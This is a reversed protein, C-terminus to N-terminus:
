DKFVIAPFFEVSCNPEILDEMTVDYFDLTFTIESDSINELLISATELHEGSVNILIADVSLYKLDHKEPNTITIDMWVGIEDCGWRNILFGLDSYYELLEDHQSNPACYYYGRSYYSDNQTNEFTVIIRESDRDIEAGMDKCIGLLYAFTRASIGKEQLFQYPQEIVMFGSTNTMEFRVFASHKSLTDMVYYLGQYYCFPSDYFEELGMDNSLQEIDKQAQTISTPEYGFVDKFMEIANDLKNDRIIIDRIENLTDGIRLYFDTGDMYDFDPNWKDPNFEEIENVMENYFTEIEYATKLEFVRALLVSANENSNDTLLNIAEEYMEADIAIEALKYNIDALLSTSQEYNNNELYSIALEYENNQFAISALNYKAKDLLASAGNYHNDYLLSVVREFENNEFANEAVKYRVEDYDGIYKSPNEEMLALAEEYKNEAILDSVSTVCGSFCVIVGLLLLSCIWKKM